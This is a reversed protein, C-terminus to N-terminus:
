GGDELAWIEEVPVDLHRAVQLASALRPHARGCCWDSVVQDGVRLHHAVSRQTMHRDRLIAPLRCEVAPGPDIM